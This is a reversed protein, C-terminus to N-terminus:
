SAAAGTHPPAATRGAVPGLPRLISQIVAPDHVTGILRLQAM